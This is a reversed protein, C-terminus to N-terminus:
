QGKLKSMAFLVSVILIIIAVAGVLIFLKNVTNSKKAFTKDDNSVSQSGKELDNLKVGGQPLTVTKTALASSDGGKDGAFRLEISGLRLVQGPKLTGGTVKRDNIFTGNTSGLDKIHVVNDKLELECHRSSVSNEAIQFSNDESRGITVKDAKLEVTKGTFGESIVVLKAMNPTTSAAM